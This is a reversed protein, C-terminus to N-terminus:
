NLARERREDGEHRTRSIWEQADEGFAPYSLAGRIDSWKRAPKQEQHATRALYIIFDRKEKSNLSKTKKMLNKLLQSAM